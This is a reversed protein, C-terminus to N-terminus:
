INFDVKKRIEDRTEKRHINLYARNHKEIRQEEPPFQMYDNFFHRLYEDYNEPLLVTTDEFRFEKGKGLWSKPFVERHGYSGTYVQVNKATEYDYLHSMRDMQRILHRRLAPRCFYALTKIVFRGWEKVDMLLTMYEGFTNHTSVANLRNIIKTYKDKLKMAKEVDDDTADLPFIDVYLGIVCPIQRDEILTTNKNALKSFYLPYTEDDYPTILEYNGFDTHKAIQLLRDYDPRPMIVDIDDDWPIIGHHRVAGIATGACCYYTLGYEECIKIFAKLIDLITANWEKKINKIDM